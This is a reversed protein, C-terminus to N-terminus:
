AVVDEIQPFAEDFSVKQAFVFDAENFVESAKQREDRKSM